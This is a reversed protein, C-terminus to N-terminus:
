SLVSSFIFLCKVRRLPFGVMLRAKAETVRNEYGVQTTGPINIAVCSKLGGNITETVESGDYYNDQVKMPRVDLKVIDNIERSENGM